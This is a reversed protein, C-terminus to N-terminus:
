ISIANVNKLAFLTGILGQLIRAFSILDIYNYKNISAILGGFYAIDFYLPDTVDNIKVNNLKSLSFNRALLYKTINANEIFKKTKKNFPNQIITDYITELDLIYYKSDENNFRKINEESRKIADLYYRKVKYFAESYCNYLINKNNPDDTSFLMGSCLLILFQYKTLSSVIDLEVTDHDTYRLVYFSKDKAEEYTVYKFVGKVYYDGFLLNRLDTCITDDDQKFYNDNYDFTSLNYSNPSHFYFSTNFTDRGGITFAVINDDDLHIGFQNFVSKGLKLSNYPKLVSKEVVDINIM